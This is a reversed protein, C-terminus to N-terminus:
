STQPYTNSQFRLHQSHSYQCYQSSRSSRSTEQTHHRRTIEPFSEFSCKYLGHSEITDRTSLTRHLWRHYMFGAVSGFHLSDAEGLLSPLPVISANQILQFSHVFRFISEGFALLRSRKLLGDNSQVEESVVTNKTLITLNCKHENESLTKTKISWSEKVVFQSYKLNIQPMQILKMQNLWDYLIWGTDCCPVRDRAQFWIDIIVSRCRKQIKFIEQNGTSMLTDKELAEINVYPLAAVCSMTVSQWGFLLMIVPVKTM